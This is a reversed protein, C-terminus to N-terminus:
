AKRVAPGVWLGHIYIRYGDPVGGHCFLLLKAAQYYGQSDTKWAVVEAGAPVVLHTTLDLNSRETDVSPEGDQPLWESGCTFVPKETFRLTGFDIWETVLQGNEAEADFVALQSWQYTCNDQVQADRLHRGRQEEDRLSQFVSQTQGVVGKGGFAGKLETTTPLREAM